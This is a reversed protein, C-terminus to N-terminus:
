VPVLNLQNVSWLTGTNLNASGHGNLGAKQKSWWIALKLGTKFPYGVGFHSNQCLKSASMDNWVLM